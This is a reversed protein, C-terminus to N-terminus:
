GIWICSRCVRACLERIKSEGKEQQSPAVVSPAPDSSSTTEESNRGGHSLRMIAQEVSMLKPQGASSNRPLTIAESLMLSAAQRRQADEARKIRNTSWPRGAEAKSVEDFTMNASRSKLIRRTSAKRDEEQLETTSLADGVLATVDTDRVWSDLTKLSTPQMRPPHPLPGVPAREDGGRERARQQRHFDAEQRALRESEAGSVQYTGLPKMPPGQSVGPGVSVPGVSVPGPPTQHQDTSDDQPRRRRGAGPTDLPTSGSAVVAPFGGYAVSPQSHPPVTDVKDEGEYSQSTGPVGHYRWNDSASDGAAVDGMSGVGAASGSERERLALHQAPMSRRTSLPAGTSMQDTHRGDFTTWRDSPLPQMDHQPPQQSRMHGRDEGNYGSSSGEEDSVERYRVAAGRRSPPGADPNGPPSRAEPDTESLYRPTEDPTIQPTFDLISLAGGRFFNEKVNLGRTLSVTYRTGAVGAEASARIFGLQVTTNRPGLIFSTVIEFPQRYVEVGGVSFIVDGLNIM